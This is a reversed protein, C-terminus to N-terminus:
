LTAGPLAGLLLARETDDTPTIQGATVTKSLVTQGAMSLVVTGNMSTPVKVVGGLKPTTTARVRDLSM